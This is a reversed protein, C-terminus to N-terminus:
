HDHAAGSHSTPLRGEEERPLLALSDAHDLHPEEPRPVPGAEECCQGLRRPPNANQVTGLLWTCLTLRQQQLDGRGQMERGPVFDDAHATTVAEAGLLERGVHHCRTEVVEEFFCGPRAECHADFVVDGVKREGDTTPQVHQRPACGLAHEPADATIAGDPGVFTGHFHDCQTGLEVGLRIKLVIRLFTAPHRNAVQAEPRVRDASRVVNARGVVHRHM